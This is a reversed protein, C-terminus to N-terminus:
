KAPVPEIANRYQQLKSRFVYVPGYFLGILVMFPLILLMFLTNFTLRIFPFPEDPFKRELHLKNYEALEISKGKVQHKWMHEIYKRYSRQPYRKWLNIQLKNFALWNEYVSVLQYFCGALGGYFISWVFIVPYFIIFPLRYLM